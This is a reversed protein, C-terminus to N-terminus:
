PEIRRLLSGRYSLADFTAQLSAALYVVGGVSVRFEGLGGPFLGYGYFSCLVRANVQISM